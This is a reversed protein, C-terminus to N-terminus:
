GPCPGGAAVHRDAPVETLTESSGDPRGIRVDVVEHEGLGLHVRPAM